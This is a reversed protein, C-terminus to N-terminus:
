KVLKYDVIRLRLEDYGKFTSREISFVLDIKDDEKIDCTQGNGNLFFGIASIIKKDKKIFDFQIHIGGNGFCKVNDVKINKLLFLPKENEKGFPAFKEVVKLLGWDIRDLGMEKDIWLTDDIERTEVKKLASFVKKELDPLNKDEINFGAALAHGGYDLFFDEGITEFLSVLNIGYAAPSRASGKIDPGEGKGWLMVPNKTKDLLRNAVLGLLGPPWNKDGIVAIPEEKKENYQKLAEKLIQDGLKKRDENRNNVREALWKAETPNITTLLSFSNTAHDMRSTANIRPAILFAIDDETITRKNIRAISILENLGMRHTKRLVGLGYKLLVRNEDVLSVMDAITAIAVADLLWKNWGKIVNFSGKELLAEITKFAVATGCLDKFPYKDGKRKPDVIAVAKPLEGSELHHDIIITEMGYEKAKIVEKCDTIGCDITIILDVKSKKFEEIAKLNLGYGEKYRDPIYVEFNEFGIKKFFDFFITTGCVGDADYDGYLIVKEKKDIAKLIRNVTKKMDKMLFPDHLGKEYDPNFYKEIDEEEKLGLSLLLQEELDDSLKEKLAWKRSTM